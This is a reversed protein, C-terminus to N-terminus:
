YCFVPIHSTRCTYLYFLNNCVWPYQLLLICDIHFLICILQSRQLTAAAVVGQEPLDIDPSASRYVQFELSVPEVLKVTSARDLLHLWPKRAYSSWVFYWSITKDEESSASCVFINCAHWVYCVFTITFNQFVFIVYYNFYLYLCICNDNLCNFDM